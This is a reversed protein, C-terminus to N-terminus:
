VLALNSWQGDLVDFTTMGQRASEGTKNSFWDSGPDSSSVGILWRGDGSHRVSLSHFHATVMIDADWGPRRGHDQGAWWKGLGDPGNANHGHHYALKTGSTHIEATEELPNPRVFEVHQLSKHEAFVDELQYSIDLGFDADTTGAQAKYTSRVAGHNSPVALYTFRPALPALTKIGEIMLRRFTRIQAAVDLDNTDRQSPVNFINEIGDGNDSLIIHAPQRERCQNAFTAFSQLVRSITEPTGGGRQQAKGIQLDAANLTSTQFGRSRTPIKPNWGDIAREIDDYKLSELLALKAPSYHIKEYSGDPLRVTKGRSTIIENPVGFFHDPQAEPASVAKRHRRVSTESLGYMRGLAVNTLTLDIQAGSQCLTCQDSHKSM